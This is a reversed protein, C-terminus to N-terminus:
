VSGEPALGELELAAKLRLLKASERENPFRPSQDIAMGLIRLDDQTLYGNELAWFRVRTWYESGLRFVETQVDIGSDQKQQSRAAQERERISSLPILESRLEATLGLDLAAARQWCAERKSWETVNQVGAPPDTIVRHMELAIQALQKELVTTVSGSSWIGLADLAWGSCNVRILQALKALTYAVVNARYGGSYWPQASVLRETTRFLILRGVAGRFYDEHFQDPATAWSSAIHEAFVLFNKQAGRSVIHPLERWANESKALDTKTLVQDRPNMELFRRREAATLSFTANQYQGRAREYFWRTEHQTGPRAPVWIRRSIEEMRRHFEHNAFFDAESVANQSNASRSIRPILSTSLESPIVALKMPVFVHELKARDNRRAAALSATTQGGNVIQLDTVGTLRLGGAGASSVTASIATASIGNNFAFFLGPDNLLTNRIAKNVRGRITLFSRVNGELLRSGHEEYLGALVDGPVVCLYARYDEAIEGAEVCPIGGGDLMAFDIAIEDRGQASLHIRHFREIDWIHYEIPLTHIYGEPWDRARSSLLQDTLLYARIRTIEERRRVMQAALGWEPSSPDRDRALHGELAEEAFARLTGFLRRADTQTLVPPAGPSSTEHLAGPSPAALFLRLSGDAADFAFGDISLSRKGPASWRFYCHEFDSVEGADELYGILVNVFSSYLFNSDASAWVSVESILDSRFEEV